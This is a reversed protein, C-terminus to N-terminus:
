FKINQILDVKVKGDLPNFLIKRGLVGGTIEEIIPVNLESL